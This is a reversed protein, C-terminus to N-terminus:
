GWQAAMAAAVGPYTRSRNKTREPGPAMRHVVAWKKREEEDAPPPGVIDTPALRPLGELWLCTAKMERHGFQWPQIVQDYKRILARAHEHQIPNELAKLPIKCDLLRNFSAAAARMDSWRQSDPGNEKKMGRYLHKAGSNALFRCEWHAIMMDWGDDLHRFVDDQIHPGPRETPQIDCSVADHGRAIFADRVIGSCECAVLVRM